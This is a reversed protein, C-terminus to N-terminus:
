TVRVLEGGGGPMRHWPRLQPREYELNISRDHLDPNLYMAAEVVSSLGHVLFDCRALAYIDVLVERGHEEPGEDYPLDFLGAAGSSRFAEQCVVPVGTRELWDLLGSDDTAVFIKGDPHQEMFSEVSPLYEMSEVIRRGGAALKDTGRMHLGLVPGASDFNERWLSQVRRTIEDRPTFYRSVIAHGRNRNTRFWADLEGDVHEGFPWAKIRGQQVHLTLDYDTHILESSDLCGLLHENIPEFFTSWLNVRPTGERPFYSSATDTKPIVVFNEDGKALCDEILGVVELFFYSGFGSGPLGGRIVTIVEPCSADHPPGFDGADSWTSLRPPGGVLDAILIHNLGPRLGEVMGVEHWTGNEDMADIRVSTVFHQEGQELVVQDLSAARADIIGLALWRQENARGGWFTKGDHFANQPGYASPNEPLAFGSSCSIGTIEEGGQMFASRRVDWAYGSVTDRTALRWGRGLLPKTPQGTKIALDPYDYVHVRCGEIEPMTYGIDGHIDNLLARGKKDVYKSIFVNKLSTNMLAATYGFTSFDLVLNSCNILVSFDELLTGHQVEAGFEQGIRDVFPHMKGNQPPTTVILIESKASREIADRYFEYPAPSPRWAIQAWENLADGGRLHIVLTDEYTRENALSDTIYPKFYTVLAERLVTSSHEAMEWHRTILSPAAVETIDGERLEIGSRLSPFLDIIGDAGYRHKRDQDAENFTVKAAGTEVGEVIAIAIQYIDNGLGLIIKGGADCLGTWSPIRLEKM